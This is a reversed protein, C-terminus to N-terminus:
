FRSIVTASSSTGLQRRLQRLCRRRLFTRPLHCRLEGHGKIEWERSIERWGVGGGVRPSTHLPSRPRSRSQPTPCGPILWRAELEPRRRVADRRPLYIWWRYRRGPGGQAPPQGVLFLRETTTPVEAARIEVSAAVTPRSPHPRSLLPPPPLVGVPPWPCHTSPKLSDSLSQSWRDTGGAAYWAPFSSKLGRWSPHVGSPPPM